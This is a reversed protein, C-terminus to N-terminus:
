EPNWVDAGLISPLELMRLQRARWIACRGFDIIAVVVTVPLVPIRTHPVVCVNIAVFYRWREIDINGTIVVRKVAGGSGTLARATDAEADINGVLKIERVYEVNAVILIDEVLMHKTDIVVIGREAQIQAVKQRRM